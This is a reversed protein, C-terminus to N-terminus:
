TCGKGNDAAINIKGKDGSKALAEVLGNDVSMVVYCGGRDCRRYKLVPSTYADTQIVLGKPISIDLPVSIQIAHRNMSPVFDLSLSLIRQGSDKMDQEQFMDCPSPSEVPFCRVLWDAVKNVEPTGPTAPAGAQALAAGATLLLGCAAASLTKMSFLKM